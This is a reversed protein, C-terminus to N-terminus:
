FYINLGRQVDAFQHADAYMRKLKATAQKEAEDRATRAGSRRRVQRETPLDLMRHKWHLAAVSVDVEGEQPVAFLQSETFKFTRM